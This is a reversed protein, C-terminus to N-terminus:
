TNLWDQESLFILSHVPKQLSLSLFFVWLINFAIFLTWKWFPGDCIHNIRETDHLALHMQTWIFICKYFHISNVVKDSPSTKLRLKHLAIISRLPKTQLFLIYSVKLDIQCSTTLPAPMLFPNLLSERNFPIAYSM